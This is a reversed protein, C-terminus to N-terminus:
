TDANKRVFLTSSYDNIGFFCPSRFHAAEKFGLRRHFDMSAQNFVPKTAVFSSIWALPNEESLKKYLLRGVGQQLHKPAVAIERVHCHRQDSLFESNDMLWQLSGVEPIDQSTILYGAPFGDIEVVFGSRTGSDFCATLAKRDAKLLLFGSDRKKLPGQFVWQDHLDMIEELDHLVIGRVRWNEPPHDTSIEQRPM